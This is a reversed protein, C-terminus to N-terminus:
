LNGAVTDAGDRASAPQGPQQQFSHVMFKSHLSEWLATTIIALSNDNSKEKEGRGALLLM